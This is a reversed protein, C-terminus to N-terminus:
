EKPKQTHITLVGFNEIDDYYTVDLISLDIPKNGVRTQIRVWADKDQLNEQAKRLTAILDELTSVYGRGHTDIIM